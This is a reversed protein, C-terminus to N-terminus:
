WKISNKAQASRRAMRDVTMAQILKEFKPDSRAANMFEEYNTVSPLTIELDITNNVTGGNAQVPSFPLKMQNMIFEAPNNAMDWINATAAKNLVSDGRKLPTLLANDSRRIIAEPAREQTWAFQDFPLDEVGSAFGRKALWKIMAQNQKGTGTYKKGLGMKVYYKKLASTSYDVDYLGLRSKIGGKGSKKLKKLQAKTYKGSYKKPIFFSYKKALASSVKSSSSSTKKPATTTVTVPVEAQDKVATINKEAATDQKDNWYLDNAKDQEARLATNTSTMDKYYGKGYSDVVDGTSGTSANWSNKMAGSITYGVEGAVSKIASYIKSANANTAEISDQLVGKLDEVKKNMSEEYDSYFDNLLEKTDSIYKDYQTDRLDEQADKLEKQLKQYKLRGEESTDGAYANLQKQLSSINSTKENM